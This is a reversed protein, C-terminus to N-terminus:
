CQPPRTSGRGPKCERMGEDQRAVARQCSAVSLTVAGYRVWDAQQGSAILLIRVSEHLAGFRALRLAGEDEEHLWSV